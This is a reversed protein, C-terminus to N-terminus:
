HFFTLHHFLYRSVRDVDNGHNDEGVPDEDDESLPPGFLSPRSAALSKRVSKRSQRLVRPSSVAFEVRGKVKPSPKHQSALIRKAYASRPKISAPPTSTILQRPTGPLEDITGSGPIHDTSANAAVPCDTQRDFSQPIRSQPPDSPAKLIPPYGPLLTERVHDIRSEPDDSLTHNDGIVSWLLEPTLKGQDLGANSNM